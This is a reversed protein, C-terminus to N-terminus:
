SSFDLLILSSLGTARTHSMCLKLISFRSSFFGSPLIQCLHFSLILVCTSCIRHSPPTLQEDPEAYPGTAPEKWRSVSCLLGRTATPEFVEVPARRTTRLSSFLVWHRPIYIRPGPGGPQPLWSDSVTFHPWSGRSVRIQSHSRQRPGAAITFSLGLRENVPHWM